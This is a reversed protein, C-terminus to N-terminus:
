ADPRHCGSVGRIRFTLRLTAVGPASHITVYTLCTACSRLRAARRISCFPSASSSTRISCGTHPSLSSASTPRSISSSTAGVLSTPEPLRLQRGARTIMRRRTAGASFSRGTSCSARTTFSRPSCRGTFPSTTTSTTWQSTQTSWSSTPRCTMSGPRALAFGRPAHTLEIPRRSAPFFHSVILEQDLEVVTEYRPSKLSFVAAPPSSTTPILCDGLPSCLSTSKDSIKGM